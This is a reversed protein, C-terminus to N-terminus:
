MGIKEKIIFQPRSKIELFIREIMAGALGLMFIIVGSFFSISVMIAAYGPISQNSYFKWIFIYAILFISFLIIGIGFLTVFTLIRSSFSLIGDMALVFSDFFKFKSVGRKREERIYEIGKQKYGVWSRLGRIFRINEPMMNIQKVVKKDMLGFESANLPMSVDSTFDFLLYFLKYFVRLFFPGKRKIREGYVVDFGEKEWSDIFDIILSTPDQLDADILISADGKVYKLGATMSMQYGFNRSLSIIKIHEKDTKYLSKMIEFQNDTGGNDVFIIEYDFEPRKNLTSILEKYTSEINESENYCPVVISIIKNNEM